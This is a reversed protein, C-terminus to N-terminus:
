AVVGPTICITHLWSPPLGGAARVLGLVGFGLVLLGSAVRV